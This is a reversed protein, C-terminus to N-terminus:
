PQPGGVPPLTLIQKSAPLRLRELQETTVLGLQLCLNEHIAYELIDYRDRNDQSMTARKTNIADIIPKLLSAGAELIAEIPTGASLKLELAKFPNVKEDPM